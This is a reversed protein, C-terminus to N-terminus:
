HSHRDGGLEVRLGTFLPKLVRDVGHPTFKDSRVKQQLEDTFWLWWFKRMRKRLKESPPVEPIIFEWETKDNEKNDEFTAM